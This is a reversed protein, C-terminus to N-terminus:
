RGGDPDRFTVRRLGLRDGRGHGAGGCQEEV